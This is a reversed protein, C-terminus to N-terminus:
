EVDYSEGEIYRLGYEDDEAETAVSAPDVPELTRMYSKLESSAVIDTELHGAKRKSLRSRYYERAHANSMMTFSEILPLRSIKTLRPPQLWRIIGQVSTESIRPKLLPDDLSHMLLESTKIIWNQLVVKADQPGHRAQLEVLPSIDSSRLQEMEALVDKLVALTERSVFPRNEDFEAGYRLLFHRYKTGSDVLSRLIDGQFPVIHIRRFASLDAVNSADLDPVASPHREFPAASKRLLSIAQPRRFRFNWGEKWVDWQVPEPPV